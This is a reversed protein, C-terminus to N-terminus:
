IIYSHCRIPTSILVLAATLLYSLPPHFSLFLPPLSLPPAHPAIHSIGSYLLSWWFRLGTMTLVERIDRPCTYVYACLYMGLATGGEPGECVHVCSCMHVYRPACRVRLARGSEREIRETGCSALGARDFRYTRAANRNWRDILAGSAFTIGDEKAIVASRSLENGAAEPRRQERGKGYNARLGRRKQRTEPLTVCERVCTRADPQHARM